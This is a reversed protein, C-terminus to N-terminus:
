ITSLPVGRASGSPQAAQVVRLLEANLELKKPMPSMGDPYDHAPHLRTTQGHSLAGDFIGSM